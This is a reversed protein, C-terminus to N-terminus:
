LKDEKAILKRQGLIEHIEVLILESLLSISTDGDQESFVDALPLETSKVVNRFGPSDLLCWFLYFVVKKVSLSGIVILSVLSPVLNNAQAFAQFNDPNIILNQIITLLEHVSFSYGFASGQLNDSTSASALGHVLSKVDRDELKLLALDDSCLSLCVHGCFLKAHIRTSGISSSTWPSLFRAWDVLPLYSIFQKELACNGIIAFNLQSIHRIHQFLLFM